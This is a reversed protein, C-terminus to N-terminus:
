IVVSGWKFALSERSPVGEYGEVTTHRALDGRPFSSPSSSVAATSDDLRLSRRLAIDRMPELIVVDGPTWSCLPSVGQADPPRRKTPIVLPSPARLLMRPAPSLRRAASRM